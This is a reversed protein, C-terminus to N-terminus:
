KTLKRAKRKESAIRTKEMRIAQERKEQERALAKIRLKERTEPSVIRKPEEWVEIIELEKYEHTDKIPTIMGALIWLFISLSFYLSTDRAIYLDLFWYLFFCFLASLIIITLKMYFFNLFLIISEIESKMNLLMEYRWKENIM